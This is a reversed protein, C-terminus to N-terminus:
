LRVEGERRLRELILPLILHALLERSIPTLGDPAAGPLAPPLNKAGPLEAM